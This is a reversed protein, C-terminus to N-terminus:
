QSDLTDWTEVRIKTILADISDIEQTIDVQARPEQDVINNHISNIDVPSLEFEPADIGFSARNDLLRQGKHYSLIVQVCNIVDEYSDQEVVSAKGNEWAFPFNFHPNLIGIDPFAM